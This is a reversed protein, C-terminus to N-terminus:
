CTTKMRMASGDPATIKRRGSRVTFYLCSLIVRSGDQLRYAYIRIPEDTVGTKEEFLYSSKGVPLPETFGTNSYLGFLLVTCVLIASIFSFLKSKM